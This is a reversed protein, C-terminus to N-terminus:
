EINGGARMGDKIKSKDWGTVIRVASGLAATGHLKVTALQQLVMNDSFIRAPTVKAGADNGAALGAAILQCAKLFKNIM